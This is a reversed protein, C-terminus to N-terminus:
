AAKHYDHKLLGGLRQCCEIQSTAIVGPPSEDKKKRKGKTPKAKLMAPM